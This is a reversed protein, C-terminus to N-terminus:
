TKEKKYEEFDHLNLLVGIEKGSNLEYKIIKTNEKLQCYHNGDQMSRFDTVVEPHFKGNIFIDELTIEKFAYGTNLWFILNFFIFSPLLLYKM